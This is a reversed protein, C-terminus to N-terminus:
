VSSVDLFAFVTVDICFCVSMPTPLFKQGDGHYSPCSPILEVQLVLSKQQVM